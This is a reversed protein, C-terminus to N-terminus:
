RWTMARRHMLQDVVELALRRTARQQPRLDSTSAFVEAVCQNGDGPRAAADAALGRQREGALTGLHDDAVDVLRPDLLGGRLDGGASTDRVGVGEVDGVGFRDLPEGLYIQASCPTGSTTTLLAPTPWVPM